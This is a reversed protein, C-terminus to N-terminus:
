CSSRASVISSFPAGSLFEVWEGGVGDPSTMFQLTRQTRMARASRWLVPDSSALLLANDMTVYSSFTSCQQPSGSCAAVIAVHM